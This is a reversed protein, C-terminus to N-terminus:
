TLLLSTIITFGENALTLLAPKMPLGDEIAETADKNSLM